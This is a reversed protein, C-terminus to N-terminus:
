QFVLRFHKDSFTIAVHPTNTFRPKTFALLTITTTSESFSRKRNSYAEVNSFVVWPDTLMGRGCCNSSEPCRFSLFMGDALEDIRGLLRRQQCVLIHCRRYEAVIIEHQYAVIGPVVDRFVAAFRQLFAGAAGYLCVFPFLSSIESSANGWVLPRVRNEFPHVKQRLPHM